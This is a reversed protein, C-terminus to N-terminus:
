RDRLEIARAVARLMDVAPGHELDALADHVSTLEHHMAVRTRELGGTQRVADMVRELAELDEGAAALDPAIDPRQQLTLLLPLTLLGGGIDASLDKGLADADATLDLLDDGLQFARGLHRGARGLSDIVAPSGGGAMAGARACWRFLSATKCELVRDYADADAELRGRRDFQLVEGEVLRAVTEILEGLAEPPGAREVLGLARVFLLDGGLVSVTNCWLVRAAPQGRRQVGDDIVDDHLLTADHVLEAAAAHPIAQGADGGAASASLLTLVPRIAKGGSGLLHAAAEGASGSCSRTTDELQQRVGALEDGVLAAARQLLASARQGDDAAAATTQLSRIVDQVM